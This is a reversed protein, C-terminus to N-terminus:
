LHSMSVHKDLYASTDLVPVHITNSDLPFLQRNVTFNKRVSYDHSECNSNYDNSNNNNNHMVDYSNVKRIADLNLAALSVETILPSSAHSKFLHFNKPSIYDLPCIVDAHNGSSLKSNCFKRLNAEQLNSSSNVNLQERTDSDQLRSEDSSLQNTTANSIADAQYPVIGLSCKRIEALLIMQQKQFETQLLSQEKRQRSILELIQKKHMEEIQKYVILLKEPITSSKTKVILDQLQRDNEIEDNYCKNEDIRPSQTESSSTNEMFEQLYAASHSVHISNDERSKKPSDQKRVDINIMQSHKVQTIDSESTCKKTLHKEPAVISSSKSTQYSESSASAELQESTVEHKAHEFKNLADKTSEAIFRKSQWEVKPSVTNWQTRQLVNTTPTPIYDKDICDTDMHALLCPSPTDLVYSGQRSLKPLNENEKSVTTLFQVHDVEQNLTLPVIDLTKPVESKCSEPMVDVNTAATETENIYETQYIGETIPLDNIVNNSSVQFHSHQLDSASSQTSPENRTEQAMQNAQMHEVITMKSFSDSNYTNDSMTNHNSIDSDSSYKSNKLSDVSEAIDAQVCKDKAHKALQKSKLKEEVKIALSKYLRMEEKISDTM